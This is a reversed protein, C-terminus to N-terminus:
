RRTSIMETGKYPFRWSMTGKTLYIHETQFGDTSSVALWAVSSSLPIHVWRTHIHWLTTVMFICWPSAVVTLWGERGNEHFGLDMSMRSGLNVDAGDGESRENRKKSKRCRRIDNFLQYLKNLINGTQYSLCLLVYTNKVHYFSCLLAPFFSTARHHGQLIEWSLHRPLSPTSSIFAIHLVPDLHQCHHTSLSGESNWRRPQPILLFTTHLGRHPLLHTLSNISPLGGERTRQCITHGREESIFNIGHSIIDAAWKTKRGFIVCSGTVWLFGCAGRGSGKIQFGSYEEKQRETM